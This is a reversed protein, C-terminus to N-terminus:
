VTDKKWNMYLLIITHFFMLVAHVGLVYNQTLISHGMASCETLQVCVDYMYSVDNAKTRRHLRHIASQLPDQDFDKVVTYGSGQTATKTAFMVSSFQVMKLVRPVEQM